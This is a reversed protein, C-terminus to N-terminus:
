RVRVGLSDGTKHDTIQFRLFAYVAKLAAPDATVIDVRGGKPTEAYTYKIRDKLATMESTGPVNTEHVLMPTEFNGDTFMMAIHPLHSRIADANAKDKIDNVSVDIAGGDPYLYFHHTTKDQYFGMAQAGRASMQAHPDQPQQALLAVTTALGILCLTAITRM